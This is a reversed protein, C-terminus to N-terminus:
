AAILTERLQKRLEGLAEFRVEELWHLADAKRNQLHERRSFLLYAYHALEPTGFKHGVLERIALECGFRTLAVDTKTYWDKRQAKDWHRIIAETHMLTSGYHTELVMAAIPGHLRSVAGLGAAIDQDRLRLPNTGGVGDRIDVYASKGMLSAIREEIPKRKEEAM